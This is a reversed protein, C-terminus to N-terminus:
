RFMVGRAGLRPRLASKIDRWVHEVTQDGDITILRGTRQYYRITPRVQREFFAFRGRIAKPNDDYRGRKRLRKFASTKSLRLYIPIPRPRGFDDMFRDLLKAEELLRPSGDLILHEDGRLREVFASLWIYMVGWAPVLGGRHLIRSIYIGFINKKRSISRLGDGTSVNQAGKFARLLRAAQVGKGSGSIGLFVFTQARRLNKVMPMQEILTM